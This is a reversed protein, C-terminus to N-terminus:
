QLEEFAVQIAANYMLDQLEAMKNYAEVRASEDSILNSRRFQENAIAYAVTAEALRSAYAKVSDM